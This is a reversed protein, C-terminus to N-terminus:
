RFCPEKGERLEHFRRNSADVAAGVPRGEATAALIGDLVLYKLESAPLSAPRDKPIVYGDGGGYLFDPVVLSYVKGAEIESWGGDAPVQLSVIRDSENRSRDVCIRFGSVQPFYGQAGGEGRYGAQMIEKFEAGTVTTHRLFSSFGFTRGIDEFRIDDEIYDDLRLTGSNIFALDAAPKGFALRMQDAIFNGWSSEGTRIAEERADMALAATGIRAELFPFKELLRDRWREEIGAYDADGAVSANLDRREPTIHPLGDADFDLEVTWIVRANSAGKIVAASVDSLPSFEAEHDHGGAVLVFTPHRARLAALELDQRMYLHTLGIIADVGASEFQGIVQEAIGLYNKDIPVYDRDNGGHDAHATLSFIGITKDGHQFTLATRLAEDAASDGTNFRYNDGLWDFDSARVADILHEPTRWDFEHNGAVVYMPALADIYNFAELMQQGYWLQSELSPNLFDGGHLIRVDKGAAELERIVTVVRGFGGKTGDEVAGVRYTDNLHILTLGSRTSDVPSTIACAALLVGSLLLCIRKM